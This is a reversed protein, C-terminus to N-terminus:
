QYYFTFTMEQQDGLVAKMDDTWPGYPAGVTIGTVCMRAGQDSSHNEVDVIRAIKGESDLVFKIRVFSSSPPYIQSKEVLSDWNQQVAEIMRQLYQGYNSWKADVAINGINSTGFKNEEFIAPRVQQQKVIQPRARPHMPDIAPRNATAGEVQPADKTGEVHQDINPRINEPVKAINSGFTDKNEGQKKEFGPLPNQEAKPVATTQPSPPTVPEPLAELHEIPKKLQGTVIQTSSIDKKGELAPRDSKGNPTPKEQAVQQNQAAFNTTQDPINSPADPNTEVFKNPPPPKPVPRAFTDPMIHINFQRSSAHPRTVTGVAHMSLINPATLWLLLHILLVGLLGIMTSRTDPDDWMRALFSRVSTAPPPTAITHSM